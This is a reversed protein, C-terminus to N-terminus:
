HQLAFPLSQGGKVGPMKEVKRKCEFLPRKAGKPFNIDNMWRQKFYDEEDGDYDATFDSPEQQEVDQQETQPGEDDTDAEGEDESRCLWDEELMGALDDVFDPSKKKQSRQRKNDNKKEKRKKKRSRRQTVCLGPVGCTGGLGLM